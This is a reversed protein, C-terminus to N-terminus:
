TCHSQHGDVMLLHSAQVVYRHQQSSMAFGRLGVLHSTTVIDFDNISGTRHHQLQLFADLFLILSPRPLNDDEAFFTMSFHQSQDSLGM